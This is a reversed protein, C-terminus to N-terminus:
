WRYQAGTFNLCYSERRRLRVKLFPHANLVNKCDGVYVLTSKLRDNKVAFFLAYMVM